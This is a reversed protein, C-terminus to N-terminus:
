FFDSRDMRDYNHCIRCIISNVEPMQKITTNQTPQENNGITNADHYSTSKNISKDEKDTSQNESM